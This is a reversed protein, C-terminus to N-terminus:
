RQDRGGKAVGEGGVMIAFLYFLSIETPYLVFFTLLGPTGVSVGTEWAKRSSVALHGM